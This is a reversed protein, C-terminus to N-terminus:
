PEILRSAHPPVEIMEGDMEIRGAQDGVNFLNVMGSGDPRTARQMIM